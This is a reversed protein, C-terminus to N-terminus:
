PNGETNQESEDWETNDAEEVTLNNEERDEETLEPDSDIYEEPQNNKDPNEGRPLIQGAKQTGSLDKEHQQAMDKTKTPIKNIDRAPDKQIAFNRKRVAGENRLMYWVPYVVTIDDPLFLRSLDCVTLM